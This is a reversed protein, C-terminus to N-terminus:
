VNRTVLQQKKIAIQEQGNKEEIVETIFKIKNDIELLDREKSKILYQKRENYLNERM